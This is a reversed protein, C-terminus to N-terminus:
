SHIIHPFICHSSAMGRRVGVGADTTACGCGPRLDGLARNQKLIELVDDADDPKVFIDIDHTVRPRGLEKVAIGGFM